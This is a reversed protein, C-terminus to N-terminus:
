ASFTYHPFPHWIVQRSIFYKISFYYTFKFYLGLYQYFLKDKIYLGIRLQVAFILVVQATNQESRLRVGQDLVLPPQVRRISLWRM